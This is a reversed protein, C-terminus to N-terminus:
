SVIQSSCLSTRRLGGRHWWSLSGEMLAMVEAQVASNVVVEKGFQLLIRGELDRVVVGIGERGSERLFSGDINM